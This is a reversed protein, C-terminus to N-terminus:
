EPIIISSYQVSYGGFYGLAGNSVNGTVRTPSSFPNGISGYSFEMTRWFDFVQKDVNCYKVTISDGKRFFAYTEYDIEANRDVGNEIQMEFSKGDVMKDDYVSNLGPLFRDSNVKTFYRTYNGLGPPDTFQGYLLIKTSDDKDVGEKYYLKNLTRRSQPITSSATYVEGDHQVTLTYTKGNEGLFPGDASDVSYYYLDYGGPSPQRHEQLAQTRDGDSVTVVADHVFLGTLKEPSIPEFFNLSKTLYVVPPHGAEITGDVVLRSERTEPAFDITKECSFFFLLLPPFGWLAQKRMSACLYETCALCCAKLTLILM